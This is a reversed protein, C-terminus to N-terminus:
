RIQRGKLHGRWRTANVPPPVPEFRLPALDILVEPESHGTRPDIVVRHVKGGRTLLVEDAMSWDAWDSRGYDQILAGELDLLRHEYVCWSGNAEGIGLLRRELWHIGRPKRWCVPRAFEWSWPVGIKVHNPAGEDALVWGERKMGMASISDGEGRWAWTSIPRVELEPPKQFGKGLKPAGVQNLMLRRNTEWIGGGGCTGYNPWLAIATLYPVRSVATWAYLPPKQNAALYVLKDGDPSLGCREEYIRGKFWQGAFFEHTATNWLVCLVHKTPGRRMLVVRPAASASIGFIRTSPTIGQDSM